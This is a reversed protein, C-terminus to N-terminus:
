TTREAKEEETREPEREVKAGAETESHTKSLMRELREVKRTLEEVIDALRRVQSRTALNTKELVEGIRKDINRGIWKRMNESYGVIEDKLKRGESESIEKEKVLRNVIKDIEDEAMHLTGQWLAAYKKAYGKLTGGGKRLLQILVGSAEDAGNERKERALLQSVVAATIDEGTQNDIVSVEEGSKILDALTDMVVYRKDVTDYLKRNAYKKVIRM